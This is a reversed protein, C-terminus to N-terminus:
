NGTKHRGAKTSSSKDPLGRRVQDVRIEGEFGLNLIIKKVKNGVLTSWM